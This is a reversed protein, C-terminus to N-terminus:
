HRLIGTLSLQSICNMLSGANPLGFYRLRTRFLASPKSPSFIATAAGQM